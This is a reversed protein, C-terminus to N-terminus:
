SRLLSSVYIPPLCWKFRGSLLWKCLSRCGLMNTLQISGVRWEKGVGYKEVMGDNGGSRVKLKGAFFDNIFGMITGSDKLSGEFIYKRTTDSRMDAIVLMPEDNEELGFAELVYSDNSAVEISLMQIFM